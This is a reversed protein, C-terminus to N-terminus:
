KSKSKSNDIDKSKVTDIVYDLTKKVHKEPIGYVSSLAKIAEKYVGKEQKLENVSEFLEKNEVMLAEKEKVSKSIFREYTNLTKKLNILKLELLESNKAKACVHKIDNENINQKVMTYFQRIEIYTAKSYRIGRNLGKYVRKMSNAYNDQWGVLKEIGDFYRSCALKYCKNKEDWFKPVILAHIHWTTEDVNLNAYVCNDGFNDRLWKINLQVWEEKQFPALGKFFDPSATLLLDKAINANKRLKIRSIYKEVDGTIDESGILIRNHKTLEPNANNVFERDMHMEFGKVAGINKMPKGIRFIAYNKLHIGGGYSLKKADELRTDRNIRDEEKLMIM